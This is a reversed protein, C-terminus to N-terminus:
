DLFEALTHNIFRDAVIQNVKQTPHFADWFVYKDADPCTHPNFENCLYGMELLGTACCGRDATEFGHQAPNQIMELLLNYVRNIILTLGPLSVRLENVMVELKANYEAAVANYEDNCEGIGIWNITRELPLCGMPSLGTFLVKRAGLRYIETLFEAALGVLFDEFESVTFQKFRGTVLLYYNELFDNTGISVVYLAESITRRAADGGLLQRLRRRYQKFYEVERWLPIVNLVGATANDMGTGASAFCVAKAFDQISRAPDLYAPVEEGLGLAEAMFDTALRGNCFRGTPKGAIFDRGYPKFNSRLVTKVFNNNGTDVTSDGFVIIAPISTRAPEAASSPLARLCLLAASIPFFFFSFRSAM